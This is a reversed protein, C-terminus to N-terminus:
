TACCGACASSGAVGERYTLRGLIDPMTNISPSAGGALSQTPAVIGNVSAYNTDPAELSIQGTLGPALRGTVRLQAQRVFSQNLNTADIITEFLGENWLSNTFGALVKFEPPRARGLGPAPPLRRQEAPAAGGGFDGEMRTELTGWRTLTRTDFGFRSFRASM